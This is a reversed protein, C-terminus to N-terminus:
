WLTEVGEYALLREDRTILQMGGVRATAVIIQNAPDRPFNGPLHCSEWAIEPSLPLMKIGPASCAQSLWIRFAMSLELKGLSEKRAVEWSSIECVGCQEGILSNIARAARKSLKGPSDLLWIWTHTDLLFKGRRGVM